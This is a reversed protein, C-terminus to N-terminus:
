IQKENRLVTRGLLSAQHGSVHFGSAGCVFSTGGPYIVKFSAGPKLAIVHDGGSEQFIAGSTRIHISGDSDILLTAGSPHYFRARPQGPSDDIEITMGGESEFVKNYPYKPLANFAPDATLTHSIPPGAGTSSSFTENTVWNPDPAEGKGAAPAASTGPDSGLIWGWTYRGHSVFGQEFEIWVPAGLPPVTLGSSSPLCWDLWNEENDGDALLAPLHVRVRGTKTPDDRDRVFGLYSGYYRNRHKEEQENQWPLIYAIAGIAM